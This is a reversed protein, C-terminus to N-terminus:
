GICVRKSSLNLEIEWFRKTTSIRYPTVGFKSYSYIVKRESVPVTLVLGMAAACLVAVPVPNSHTHM